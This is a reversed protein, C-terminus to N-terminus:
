IHRNDFIDLIMSSMTLSIIPLDFTISRNATAGGGFYTCVFKSLVSTQNFNSTAYKGIPLLVSDSTSTQAQTAIVSGPIKTVFVDSIMPRGFGSTIIVDMLLCNSRSVASTSGDIHINTYTNWAYKEM